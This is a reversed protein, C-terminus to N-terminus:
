AAQKKREARLRNRENVSLGGFVGYAEKNILAVELCRERIPCGACVSKAEQQAGANGEAAWDYLAPGVERCLANAREDGTLAAKVVIRPQPNSVMTRVKPQPANGARRNRKVCGTCYGHAGYFKSGPERDALPKSKRHLPAQCDPCPPLEPRRRAVHCLHCVQGVCQLGCKNCRRHYSPM